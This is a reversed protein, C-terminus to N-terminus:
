LSQMKASFFIFVTGLASLVKFFGGGAGVVVVVVGFLAGRVL